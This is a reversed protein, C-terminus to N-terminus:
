IRQLKARIESSIPYYGSLNFAGYEYVADKIMLDTIGLKKQNEESVREVRSTKGDESYVMFALSARFDRVDVLPFAVNARAAIEEQLLDAAIERQLRHYDEQNHLLTTRMAKQPTMDLDIRKGKLAPIKIM